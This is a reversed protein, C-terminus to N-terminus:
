KFFLIYSLKGGILDNDIENDTERHFPLTNAM